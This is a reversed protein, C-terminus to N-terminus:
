RMRIKTLSSQTGAAWESPSVVRVLLMQVATGGTGGAGGAAGAGGSTGSGGSGSGGEGAGPDGGIGGGGIQTCLLLPLESISAFLEDDGLNEM